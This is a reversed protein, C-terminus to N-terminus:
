AILPVVVTVPSPALFSHPPRKVPRVSGKISFNLSDSGNSRRMHASSMRTTCKSLWMVEVVLWLAALRIGLRKGLHADEGVVLCRLEYVAQVLDGGLPCGARKLDLLAVLVDM